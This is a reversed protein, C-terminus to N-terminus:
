SNFFEPNLLSELQRRGRDLVPSLEELALGLVQAIQEVDFLELYFLALASREPEPLSHFSQALIVTNPPLGHDASGSDGCRGSVQAEQPSEMSVARTEMCSQRLRSVLWALRHSEDRIQAIRRECDSLVADLARGALDSGGTLLLAFRYLENLVTQSILANHLIFSNPPDPL